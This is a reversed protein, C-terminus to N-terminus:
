RGARARLWAPFRRRAGAVADRVAGAADEHVGPGHGVLVHEAPHAALARPPRPIRLLPHVALREGPARYYGATGLADGVVLTSREPWWLARERWVPLDLVALPQFPAGPIPAAPVFHLPVGLRAALPAGDRDHRDVLQIVGAPEGLARVRAEVGDGDVPDVLWVRGDHV